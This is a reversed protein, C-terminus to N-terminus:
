STIFYVNYNRESLYVFTIDSLSRGLTSAFLELWLRARPVIYHLNAVHERYFEYKTGWAFKHLSLLMDKFLFSGLCHTFVHCIVSADFEVLHCAFLLPVWASRYFKASWPTLPEVRSLIRGIGCFSTGKMVRTFRCFLDLPRASFPLPAFFVCQRSDKTRCSDHLGTV